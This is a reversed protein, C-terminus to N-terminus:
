ILQIVISELWRGADSATYSTCLTLYPPIIKYQERACKDPFFDSIEMEKKLVYVVIVSM